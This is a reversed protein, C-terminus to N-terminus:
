ISTIFYSSSYVPYFICGPLASNAPTSKPSFLFHLSRPNLLLPVQVGLLFYTSKELSDSLFCCQPPSFYRSHSLILVGLSVSCDPLFHLQTFHLVVTKISSHRIVLNFWICEKDLLLISSGSLSCPSCRGGPEQCNCSSMQFHSPPLLNGKLGGMQIIVLKHNHYHLM